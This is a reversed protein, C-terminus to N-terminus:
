DGAWITQFEKDVFELHYGFSTGQSPREVVFSWSRSPQEDPEFLSISPDTLQTRMAAPDKLEEDHEGLHRIIQPLLEPLWGFVREVLALQDPRLPKEEGVIQIKVTDASFPSSPFQTQAEWQWNSRDYRFQLNHNACGPMIVVFCLSIVVAYLDGRRGM